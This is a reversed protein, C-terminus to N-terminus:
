GEREEEEKRNQPRVEARERGNEEHMKGGVEMGRRENHEKLKKGKGVKKEVTRM